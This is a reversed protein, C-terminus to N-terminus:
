HPCLPLLSTPAPSPPRLRPVHARVVPAPPLPRPALPADEHAAKVLKDWVLVFVRSEDEKGEGKRRHQMGWGGVSNDM